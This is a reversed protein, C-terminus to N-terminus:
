QGGNLLFSVKARTADSFREFEEPELLGMSQIRTLQLIMQSRRPDNFARGLDKDREMILQYIDLYCEHATMRTDAVIRGILNLVRQCFRELARTRLERFIKWDSEPLNEM